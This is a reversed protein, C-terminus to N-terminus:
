IHILSLGYVEYLHRAYAMNGDITSIDLGLRKTSDLHYYENIQMVGVDGTNVEGRLLRGKSDTQRFSSECRAVEILIPLDTFYAKVQEETTPINTTALQVEAAPMVPGVFAPATVPAPTAQLGVSAAFIGLLLSPVILM